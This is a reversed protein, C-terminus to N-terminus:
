ELASIQDRLSQIEENRELITNSALELQGTREQLQKKLSDIEALLKERM